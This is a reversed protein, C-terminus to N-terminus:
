PNHVSAGTINALSPTGMQRMNDELERRLITLVAEVGEQGFAALGWIYPRGICVASAGLALAKFFDNGRRFGSDILIPLREDVAAAVEPLVEITSLGTDVVRGGHNSVIIGDVGHEVSLAADEATLIGKLVLNMSTADRIRDVYDWDLVNFRSLIEGVFGRLASDKHCAQCEPTEERRYSRIRDRGAAGVHDVTLVVTECGAKEARQLRRSTVPWLAPTYLQFWVPRGHEANVEEIPTSTGLSLIQVHDHRKAARAVALEGEPHFAKQSRVPALVIPSSMRDGLIRAETQLNSVDVLRRARLQFRAFGERNARLTIEREVGLSLYDYHAPLLKEKAVAELDFVNIADAAAAILEQEEALTSEGALARAVLPEPAWLGKLTALLPSTLILRLLQRRSSRMFHPNARFTADPDTM